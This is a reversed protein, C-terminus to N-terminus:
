VHDGPNLSSLDHARHRNNFNRWQKLRDKQERERLKTLNAWSPNLCSPLVPHTTRIKRGTLLEAPSHGNTLPMARYAMLALYPDSSKQLMTKVMRVAREAEGNSQPYRPSSTTHVFGWESAFQRFIDATFQPGNDTRVEAPIGHRAFISKLHEIVVAATTSTLKAVEIYRSFYDVVVLYQNNDWEFLDTGIKEWLRDPFDTPLLTERHNQREKACTDCEEVLKQLQTSLGPWWVSQKAWERCKAIGQHATHLNGLIETQL